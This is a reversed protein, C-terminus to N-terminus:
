NDMTVKTKKPKDAPKENTTAPKDTPKQAAPKPKAPNPKVAKNEPDATIDVKPIDMEPTYPVEEYRVPPLTTDIKMRYISNLYSIQGGMQAPNKKSAWLDVQMGQDRISGGSPDQYYIIDSEDRSGDEHEILGIEFLNNSIIAKAEAVTRGVVNPVGINRMPGSGVILDITSFRKLLTGPKLTNGNYMMRIVADKQINPEFITDGIKLGVQELRTYALGMYSDLIDPVQVPAYDRPNVKLRVIRGNKVRAGATPYTKLVQFPRFKPDFNGSDVEYTLGADELQKIAKQVSINMVNPVPTEQGHKTHFELWRFTLWVLGLFVVAAVVINLLVKWHFLSKLM